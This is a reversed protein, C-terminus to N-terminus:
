QTDEYPLDTKDDEKTFIIRTINRYPHYGRLVMADVVADDTYRDHTLNYVIWGDVESSILKEIDPM